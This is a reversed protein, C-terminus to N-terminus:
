PESGSVATYAGAFLSRAFQLAAIDDVLMARAAAEYDRTGQFGIAKAIADLAGSERVPCTTVVAAWDRGSLHQELATQKEAVLAATDLSLNVPRGQAVSPVTPLQDLVRDRAAKTAAKLVMRAAHQRVRSIGADLAADYRGAPDVKTLAAWRESVMRLITPHYYVSEVSYFPVAFISKEELDAIRAPNQGDGDVIGWASVWTLDETSRLGTVAQEVAKCSEKAVVSVMPFILSYLPKDLSEERGEVFLIHRRSGLM